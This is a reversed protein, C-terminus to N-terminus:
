EKIKIERRGKKWREGKGGNGYWDVNINDDSNGGNNDKHGGGKAGGRGGEEGENGDSDDNDDNIGGIERIGSNDRCRRWGGKKRRKRRKKEEENWGDENLVFKDFKTFFNIYM